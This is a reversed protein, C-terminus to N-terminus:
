LFPANTACSANGVLTYSGNGTIDNANNQSKQGADPRLLYTRVNLASLATGAIYKSGGGDIGRLKFNSNTITVLGSAVDYTGSDANGFTTPTNAQPNQIQRTWRCESNETSSRSRVLPM